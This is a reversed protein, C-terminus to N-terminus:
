NDDGLFRGQGTGRGLGAFALAAVAGAALLATEHHRNLHGALQNRRENILAIHFLGIGAVKITDALGDRRRCAPAQIQGLGFTRQQPCFPLRNRAVPHRNM